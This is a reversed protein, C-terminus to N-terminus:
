EGDFDSYKIDLYDEEITMYLSKVYAKIGSQDRVTWHYPRFILDTTVIDVDDLLGCLGEDLITKKKTVSGIMVLKPPQVKFGVSIQIYYDGTIVEGDVERDKTRKVNWGDKSLTQATEEDLLVCFNRDGLSNFTTQEGKFNRWVVKADEILVTGDNNSM